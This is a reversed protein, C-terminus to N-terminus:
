GWVGLHWGLEGLGLGEGLGTLEVKLARRCTGRRQGGHKERPKPRVHSWGGELVRVELGALDLPVM